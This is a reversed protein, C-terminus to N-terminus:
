NVKKAADGLNREVNKAPSQDGLKDAAKGLGKPLTDVADGVREGATRHDQMLYVAGVAFIAIIAVALIVLLSNNSGQTSTIAM